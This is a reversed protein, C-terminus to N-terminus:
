ASEGQVLKRTWVAWALALLTTLGVAFLVASVPTTNRAITGLVLSFVGIVLTFGVADLAMVRGRVDDPTERQVYMRSYTWLSGAGLHGVFIGLAGLWDIRTLGWLAYGGLCLVFSVAIIHVFQRLTKPVYFTQVLVPGIFSGIGRAASCCAPAGIAPAM